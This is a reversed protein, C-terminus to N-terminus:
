KLKKQQPKEPARCSPDPNLTKSQLTAQRARNLAKLGKPTGLRWQLEQPQNDKKERLLIRAVSKFLDGFTRYALFSMDSVMTSTPDLM